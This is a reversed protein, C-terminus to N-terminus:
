TTAGPQAIMNSGCNILALCCAMISIARSVSAPLPDLSVHLVLPGVLRQILIIGTLIPPMTQATDASRSSSEGVEEPRSHQHLVGVASLGQFLVELGCVYSRFGHPQALLGMDGAVPWQGGGWHGPHALVIDPGTLEAGNTLLWM